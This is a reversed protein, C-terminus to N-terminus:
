VTKTEIPETNNLLGTKPDITTKKNQSGKKWKFSIGNTDYATIEKYSFYNRKYKHHTHFYGDLPTLNYPYNELSQSYRYPIELSFATGVSTKRIDDFISGTSKFTSYYFPGLSLSGTSSISGDFYKSGSWIYFNGSYIAPNSSTYESEM